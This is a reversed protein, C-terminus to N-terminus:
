VSENYIINLEYVCFYTFYLVFFKALFFFFLLRIIRVFKSFFVIMENEIRNHLNKEMVYLYTCM